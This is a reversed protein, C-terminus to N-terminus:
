AGDQQRVAAALIAALVADLGDNQAGGLAKAASAALAPQRDPDALRHIAAALTRADTVEIAAGAADLSAFAESFNAVHPGHIIASGALAPEFPTHGGRDVLSGGVFTMGAAAYWLAMEGLTDALLVETGDRVPEGRSRTAFRLGNKRLEAEIKDRRRPHRPALVLRLGPTQDRAKLFAELVIEDEGEHTSAALLTTTRRFGPLDALGAASPAPITTTGKLNSRPALRDRPLGLAVIRQESALDQASLLALRALLGRALGPVIAWRAASRASMRAGAVIVPISRRHCCDIRNPWLENEIVVLAAPHWRNLFRGLCWRLDLPALAAHVRPNAWGTVLARGTVSNSTVVFQLDSTMALAADILAKASTLEGNSAGHLWIRRGEGGSVGNGGLREGLDRRTTRGLALHMLLRSLVVPAFLSLLFRYVLVPDPKAPLGVKLADPPSNPM